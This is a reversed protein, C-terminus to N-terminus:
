PLDKGAADWELSRAKVMSPGFVPRDSLSGRGEALQADSARIAALATELRIRFGGAGESTDGSKGLITLGSVSRASRM